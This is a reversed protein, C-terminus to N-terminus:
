SQSFTVRAGDRECTYETSPLEGGGPQGSCSFGQASYSQGAGESARAVRRAIPCAVRTAEIGFAGADTQPEFAVDGCSHTTAAGTTTTTTTTTQETTTTTTATTTTEVTTTTSEGGGCGAVSLAALSALIAVTRKFGM